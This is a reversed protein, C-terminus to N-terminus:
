RPGPSAGDHPLVLRVNACTTLDTQLDGRPKGGVVRSVRESGLTKGVFALSLRGHLDSAAHAASAILACGTGCGSVRLVNEQLDFAGPIALELAGAQVSAGAPTAFEKWDRQAADRTGNVFGTIAFALGPIGDGDPDTAGDPVETSTV